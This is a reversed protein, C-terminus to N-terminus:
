NVEKDSLIEAPVKGVLNVGSKLLAEMLQEKKLKTLDSSLCNHVTSLYNAFDRNDALQQDAIFALIESKVKKKLYEETISWESAVDIGLHDAFIKRPSTAHEDGIVSAVAAEKFMAAVESEDLGKVAGFIEQDSLNTWQDIKEEPRLCAKRALWPHLHRVNRIFSFLALRQIRLDRDEIETVRVPLRGQFFLDRFYKGHWEV